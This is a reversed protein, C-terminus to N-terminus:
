KMKELESSSVVVSFWMKSPPEVMYLVGHKSISVKIIIVRRRYCLRKRKGLEKGTPYYWVEEGVKFEM